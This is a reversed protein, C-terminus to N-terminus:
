SIMDEGWKYGELRIRQYVNFHINKSLNKVTQKKTAKQYDEINRCRGFILYGYQSRQNISRLFNVGIYEKQRSFISHVQNFNKITQEKSHHTTHRHIIIIEQSKKDSYYANSLTLLTLTGLLYAPNKIKSKM